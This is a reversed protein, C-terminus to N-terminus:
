VRRLAQEARLRMIGAKGEYPVYGISGSGRYQPKYREAMFDAIVKSDDDHGGRALHEAAYENAFDNYKPDISGGPESELAIEDWTAAHSHEHALNQAIEAIVDDETPKRHTIQSGRFDPGFDALNAGVFAPAIPGKGDDGIFKLWQRLDRSSDAAEIVRQPITTPRIRSSGRRFKKNEPASRENPGYGRNQIEQGRKSMFAHGDEFRPPMYLGSEKARDFYFDKFVNWGGNFAETM